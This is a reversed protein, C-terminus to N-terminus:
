VQLAWAEGSIIIIEKSVQPAKFELRVKRGAKRGGRKPVHSCCLHSQALSAPIYFCLNEECRSSIVAQERSCSAGVCPEGETLFPPAFSVPQLVSNTLASLQHQCKAKNLLKLPPIRFLSPSLYRWDKKLYSLVMKFVGNLFSSNIIFALFSTASDENLKPVVSGLSGVFKAKNKFKETEDSLVPNTNLKASSSPGTNSSQSLSLIQQLM